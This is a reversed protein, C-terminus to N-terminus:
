KIKLALGGMLKDKLECPQPWALRQYYWGCHIIGRDTPHHSHIHVIYMGWNMDLGFIEDSIIQKIIKLLAIIILKFFIWFLFQANKELM